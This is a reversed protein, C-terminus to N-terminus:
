PKPFVKWATYDCVVLIKAGVFALHLDGTAQGVQVVATGGKGGLKFKVPVTEGIPPLVQVPVAQITSGYPAQVAAPLETLEGLATSQLVYKQDALGALKGLSVLRYSWPRGMRDTMPPRAAAPIKPHSNLQELTKPYAIEKRYYLQLAAVVKDRDLRTMWGLAVRRAGDTVPGAPAKLAPEVLLLAEQVRGARFGHWAEFGQAVPILPDGPNAEQFTHCAKIVGAHDDASALHQKWLELLGDENAARAPCVHLILLALGLLRVRRLRFWFAFELRRPAPAYALERQVTYLRSEGSGLAFPPAAESKKLTELALLAWL